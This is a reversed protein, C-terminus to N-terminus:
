NMKLMNRLKIRLISGLIAVVQGYLNIDAILEPGKESRPLSSWKTKKKKKQVWGMRECSCCIDQRGPPRRIVEKPFPAKM